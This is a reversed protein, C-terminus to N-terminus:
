ERMGAPVGAKRAEEQMDSLQRRAVDLEKQKAEIRNKYDREEKDWQNSNRLRNGVDAYMAAARLRYERQLVDSERELLKITDKQDSIKKHWQENIKDRDDGPQDPDATLRTAKSDKEQAANDDQPKAENSEALSAPEQVPQKGVVNIHEQAPLNDNDFVRTPAPESSKEKRNARAADGLSSQALCSPLAIFLALVAVIWLYVIRKM